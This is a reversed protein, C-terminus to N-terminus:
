TDPSDDSPQALADLTDRSPWAPLQDAPVGAELALRRVASAMEEVRRRYTAEADRQRIIYQVRRKERDSRGTAWRVLAALLEKIGLAGTIGVIAAVWAETTM